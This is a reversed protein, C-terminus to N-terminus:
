HDARASTHPGDVGGVPIDDAFVFDGVRAFGPGSEVSSGERAVPEEGRVGLEAAPAPWEVPGRFGARQELGNVTNGPGDAGRRGGLVGSQQKRGVVTDVDVIGFPM